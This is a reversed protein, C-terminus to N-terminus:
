LVETDGRDRGRFFEVPGATQVQPTSSALGRGESFSETCGHGSLTTRNQGWGRRTAKQLAGRAVWRDVVL